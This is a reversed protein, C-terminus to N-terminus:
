KGAWRLGFYIAQNSVTFLGLNFDQSLTDPYGLVTVSFDDRSQDGGGLEVSEQTVCQIQIIHINLIPVVVRNELIKARVLWYRFGAFSIGERECFAKQSLGSDKWGRLREEWEERRTEREM